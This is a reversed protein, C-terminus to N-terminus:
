AAPPLDGPLRPMSDRWPHKLQVATSMTIEGKKRHFWDVVYQMLQLSKERSNTGGWGNEVALCLATWRMFVQRVGEEFALKSQGALQIRPGTVQGSRLNM